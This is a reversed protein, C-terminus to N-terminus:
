YKVAVCEKRVGSDVHAGILINQFLNGLVFDLKDVIAERVGEALLVV